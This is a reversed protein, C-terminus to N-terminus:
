KFSYSTHTMLHHQIWWNEQQRDNMHQIGIQIKDLIGYEM